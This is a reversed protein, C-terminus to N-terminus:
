KNLELVLVSNLPLCQYLIFVSYLCQSTLVADRDRRSPSINDAAEFLGQM